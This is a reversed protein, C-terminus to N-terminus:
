YNKCSGNKRSELTNYTYSDIIKQVLEKFKEILELELDLVADGKTGM